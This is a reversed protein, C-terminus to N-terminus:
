RITWWIIRNPIKSVIYRAWSEPMFHDLVIVWSERMDNEVERVVEIFGNIASRLEEGFAEGIKIMMRRADQMSIMSDHMIKNMRESFQEPIMGFTRIFKERKFPAVLRHLEDMMKYTDNM